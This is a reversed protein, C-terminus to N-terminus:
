RTLTSRRADSVRATSSRASAAVRPHASRIARGFGEVGFELDNSWHTQWDDHFTFSNYKAVSREVSLEHAAGKNDNIRCSFRITDGSKVKEWVAPMESWPISAEVFRMDETRHVVLKAGPVVGGDISSHPQRPYFHKRPMGPAKLRWVETGGGYEEAVPNLAYEYDTDWFTMFRPMVGSPHTYWPKVPLVNFALQVNDHEGTGSPIDFNRRYSYHRVDAPWILQNGEYTLVHEPYFYSDDRRAAFRVMGLDPTRDPIRAAFYFNSQDYATYVVPTDSRHVQASRDKYPLLAVESLSAQVDRAPLPQPLVGEWDVLDGDVHISRRQVLNVHMTERHEVTGAEGADFNAILPYSNQAAVVGKMVTFELSRRENAALEVLREPKMLAAGELTVHLRGQVPRNLVNTLTLRLRPAGDMASTPDRAIIEVPDLGEVRAARLARLLRAFSGPSGDTRLFYGRGNLPITIGAKGDGEGPNGYFDFARLSGDNRVLMRADPHVRVTRFLTRAPDYIKALNGLVVVTGDEPTEGDFVFVWPLGNRFLLERFTRQGIFKQTAAVAAAPPWAQVVPYVQDGIRVNRSDYVNGRYIGATRSQGQARMSAIVGAVRDESNAIWSETDWVRVPGYASKRTMWEPVLAPDAALAQYHISIFDMWKLFRDSGDAFLKDRANSSSCLGGILVKVDSDQRAQEVGQALHTFIERYRPIDAGWGSISTSEWPENWLEVANLNGRPWGYLQTTRRVWRQFDDDFSPLWARDDKTDLMRGEPSLWPRPRALPQSTPDEGSGVTLMVTVEHLKAWAMSQSLHEADKRAESGDTPSYSAGMRTGKIGLKQFLTFVQENMLDDWTTDLAYTPFQVRGPDPRVTRVLSACFYAGQGPVDLVLAYGGYTSGVDPRVVIQEAGGAPIDIPVPVSSSEGVRFVHPTWIDGEPVATGYQVVHMTAVSHIRKTDHSSVQFTIEAQEGPWLVNAGSIVDAPTSTDAQRVRIALQQVNVAAPSATSLGLAEAFGPMETGTVMQSRAPRALLVGTLM